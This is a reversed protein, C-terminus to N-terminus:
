RLEWGTFPITRTDEESCMLSFIHLFTGYAIHRLSEAKIKGEM